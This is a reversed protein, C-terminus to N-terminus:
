RQKRRVPPHSNNEVRWAMGDELNLMTDSGVKKSKTLEKTLNTNSMGEITEPSGLGALLMAMEETVRRWAGGGDGSKRSVHQRTHGGGATNEPSVKWVNEGTRQSEM